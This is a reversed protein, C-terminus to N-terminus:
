DPYVGFIGCKKLYEFAEEPSITHIIKVKGEELTAM